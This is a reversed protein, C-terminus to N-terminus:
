QRTTQRANKLSQNKDDTAEELDEFEDGLDSQMESDMGTPEDAPTKKQLGKQDAHDPTTTSTKNEM